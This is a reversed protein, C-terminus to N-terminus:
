QIVISALCVVSELKNQNARYGFLLLLFRRSTFFPAIRAGYTLLIMIVVAAIDISYCDELVLERKGVIVLM